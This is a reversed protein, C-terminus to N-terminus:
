GKFNNTGLMHTHSVGARMFFSWRDLWTDSAEHYLLSFNWRTVNLLSTTVWPWPHKEMACMSFKCGFVLRNCSKLRFIKQAFTNLKDWFMQALILKKSFIPREGGSKGIGDTILPTLSNGEFQNLYHSFQQDFPAHFLILQMILYHYPAGELVLCCVAATFNLPKPTSFCAGAWSRNGILQGLRLGLKRKFYFSKKKSFM